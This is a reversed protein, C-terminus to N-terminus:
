QLLRQEVDFPQSPLEVGFQIQPFGGFGKEFAPHVFLHAPARQHAIEAVFGRLPRLQQRLQRAEGVMGEVFVAKGLEFGAERQHQALLLRAAVEEKIEKRVARGLRELGVLGVHDGEFLGFALDAEDKETFGPIDLRAGPLNVGKHEGLEGGLIVETLIHDDAVKNIALEMHGDALLIRGGPKVYRPMDPLDVAVMNETGLIPKTTLTLSQGVELKIPGQQLKGTRIKPGQLDQMIAVPIGLRNATTRVTLIRQAHDEHNGHSFNLRAVNMGAEILARIAREDKSSPGLTAVIKTRRQM